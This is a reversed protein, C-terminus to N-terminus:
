CTASTSKGIKHGSRVAVRSHEFAARLIEEQRSWLRLGLVERAFEVPTDRAPSKLRREVEANIAPWLERPVLALAEARRSTPTKLLLSTAQSVLSAQSSKGLM